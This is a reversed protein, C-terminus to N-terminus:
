PQRALLLMVEIAILALLALIAWMRQTGNLRNALFLAVCLGLVVGGLAGLATEAVGDFGTRPQDGLLFAVLLGGPAFGAIAAMLVFIIRSVIDAM